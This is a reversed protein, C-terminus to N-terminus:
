GLWLCYFGYLWMVLLIMMSFVFVPGRYRRRHSRSHIVSHVYRLIVYIWALVEFGIPRINGIIVLLCIIYFLVPAEFLNKINNNTLEEKLVFVDNDKDKIIKVRLSFLRIYQIAILVSLGM